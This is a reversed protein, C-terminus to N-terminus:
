RLRVRFLREVREQDDRMTEVYFHEGAYAQNAGLTVTLFTVDVGCARLLHALDVTWISKTPCLHRLTPMDLHQLRLARLVMLVCALGCDWNFLQRVHPIHLSGDLSDNGSSSSHEPSTDSGPAAVEGGSSHTSSNWSSNGECADGLLRKSQSASSVTSTCM